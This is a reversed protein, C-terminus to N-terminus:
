RRLFNDLIAEDLDGRSDVKLSVSGGWCNWRVRYIEGGFTEDQTHDTGDVRRPCEDMSRPRCFGAAVVKADASVLRSAMAAHSVIAPFVIPVNRAGLLGDSLYSVIIYKAPDSM